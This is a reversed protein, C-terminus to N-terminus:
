AETHRESCCSGNAHETETQTPVDSLKDVRTHNLTLEPTTERQLGTIFQQSYALSTSLENIISENDM